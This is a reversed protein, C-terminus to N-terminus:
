LGSLKNLCDTIENTTLVLDVSKKRIAQRPMYDVVAEKPDQAINFGGNAKVYEMGGAGDANAGSLIICILKSGFIDSASKFSVDISPRSYEVKESYDLSFTKEKEILVHYDAPAIYLHGKMIFEKEEVEKVILHSRSKLVETLLSDQQTTRHLIILMPINFEKHLAPLLNLMVELSGTSGGIVILEPFITIQKKAM